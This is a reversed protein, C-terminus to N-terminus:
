TLLNYRLCNNDIEEPAPLRYNGKKSKKRWREITYKEPNKEVELHLM